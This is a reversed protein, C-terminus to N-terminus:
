NASDALNGMLRNITNGVILLPLGSAWIYFLFAKLAFCFVPATRAPIRGAITPQSESCRPTPVWLARLKEQHFSHLLRTRWLFKGQLALVSRRLELLTRTHKIASDFTHVRSPRYPMPM